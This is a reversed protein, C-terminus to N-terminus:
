ECFNEDYFCFLLRETTLLDKETYSKKALQKRVKKRIVNSINKVLNEDYDESCLDKIALVESYRLLPYHLNNEENLLGVSHREFNEKALITILEKDDNIANFVYKQFDERLKKNAYIVLLLQRGKLKRSIVGNGKGVRYSNLYNCAEEEIKKIKDNVKDTIVSGKTNKGMAYVFKYGIKHETDYVKLTRLLLTKFEKKALSVYDYLVKYNGIGADDCYRKLDEEDQYVIKCPIENFFEMIDTYWQTYSYFGEENDEDGQFDILDVMKLYSYMLAINKNNNGKYNSTDLCKKRPKTEQKRKKRVKERPVDYIEIIIFKHGKKEYNFFRQWEKLQAEKSSGTKIPEGLYECLSKYNSFIQEEKLTNYNM